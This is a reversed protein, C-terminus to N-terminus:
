AQQTVPLLLWIVNGSDFIGIKKRRNKDLNTM